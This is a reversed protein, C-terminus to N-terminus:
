FCSVDFLSGVLPLGLPGPFTVTHPAGGLMGELFWIIRRLAKRGDKFGSLIFIAIAVAALTYFIRSEQASEVVRVTDGSTAYTVSLNPSNSM